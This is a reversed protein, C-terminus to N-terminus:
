AALRRTMRLANRGDRSDYDLEDMLSHIIFLGMGGVPLRALDAPDFEFLPRGAPVMPTGRDAVEISIQGAELAFAVEVVHGPQGHYAHRVANNVAEAVALEVQASGRADLGAASCMARVAGVVLATNELRSDTRLTVRRPPPPAGRSM